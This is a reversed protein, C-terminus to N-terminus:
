VLIIPLPNSASVIEGNVVFTTPNLTIATGPAAAAVSTAPLPNSTSVLAGNTVLSKPNVPTDPM